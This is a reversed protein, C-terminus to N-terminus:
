DLSNSLQGTRIFLKLYKVLLDTSVLSVKDRMCFLYSIFKVDSSGVYRYM